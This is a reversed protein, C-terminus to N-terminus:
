VNLTLEALAIKRCEATSIAGKHTRPLENKVIVHRPLKFYAILPRLYERAEDATIAAGPAPIIFACIEEGFHRDPVGIVKCDAVAPHKILAQEIELPSINEGGRIILEKCRGKLTINGSEDLVGLDGTHIWGEADLTKATEAEDGYYKQMTLYGRVCIEGVEGVPLPAGTNMDAIKGEVHNMFHGVTTSRVQIDDDIYCVTLGATCETQGLSSMLTFHPGITTQIRIFDEVTYGAGAVIGIRLTKLREPSFNEKSLMAFFMTPVCNVVTCGAREITNMLNVTRRNEPICVCAGVALASYLNVSICFCHFIPMAELVRDECTMALDYSQQIGGNVRSYHSTCVAKPRSTSGSTFLITSTDQPTVLAAAARVEAAGVPALETFVPYKAGCPNLSLIKELCKPCEVGAFLEEFHGEGKDSYGLLLVSSETQEILPLLEPINLSTNLMVSMAGIYEIAYMTIIGDPRPDSLLAVRDGRRVGLAMLRGACEIVRAELEVYSTERGDFWLAARDPHKEATRRLLQALTMNELPLMDKEVLRELTNTTM